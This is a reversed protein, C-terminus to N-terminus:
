KKKKYFQICFHHVHVNIESVYKDLKAKVQAVFHKFANFTFAASSEEQLDQVSLKVLLGTDKNNLNLNLQSLIRTFKFHWKAHKRRLGIKSFLFYQLPM